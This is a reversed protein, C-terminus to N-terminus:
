EPRTAEMAPRTSFAAFWEALSPNASRWDRDAHRFDVYGLACAIGIQGINLPGELFDGWDSAVANISREAKAWQAEVWPEYVMDEPRIRREYTMLVAADMLADATAELTLIKWIEDNPYLDAGARDNLYRCIIRSDYVSSGDELVLSPIKGSPNAAVAADASNVPTTSVEVLTTDDILGTERLVVSVKRAFPSLGSYVLKM